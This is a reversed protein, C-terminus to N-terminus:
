VVAVKPLMQKEIKIFEDGPKYKSEDILEWKSIDGTKFARYKKKRLEQKKIQYNDSFATREEAIKM